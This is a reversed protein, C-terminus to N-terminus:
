LLLSAMLLPLFPIYLKRLQRCLLLCVAVTCYPQPHPHGLRTKTTSCVSGSHSLDLLGPMWKLMGTEGHYGMSPVAVSECM